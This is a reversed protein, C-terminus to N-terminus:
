RTLVIDHWNIARNVLEYNKVDGSMADFQAREYMFLAFANDHYYQMAEQLLAVRKEPNMESDAANITPMIAKDCIWRSEFFFNCSHTGMPRGADGTPYSEFQMSFADAEWPAQNLIKKILIPTTIVKLELDIGVKALESAIHQLASSFEGLTTVVEATLKIGNPYGAEALLQKAKEPDYPYPKVNPNYGVNGMKIPQGAARVLGRLVTDIFAQKDVAYNMAQRIRVDQLPGERVSNIMLTMINHTASVIVQGGADEIIDISEPGVDLAMDVQGSLLAQVRSAVEPLEIITLADVKPKRWGNDHAVAEIRDTGWDTVRFAGTGVPNRAFTEIGESWATPEVVRIIAAQSYFIPNPKKTKVEVTNEDIARASALYKVQRAANTSRGEDTTFYHINFAIAEATVPKGNHFKVGPRVKLIWTDPATNEWSTVLGANTNGEQDNYTLSDFFAMLPNVALASFARHVNGHNPPLTRHGVLLTEAQVAAAGGAILGAIAASVILKRM